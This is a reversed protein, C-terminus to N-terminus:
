PTFKKLVGTVIRFVIKVPLLVIASILSFLMFFLSLFPM